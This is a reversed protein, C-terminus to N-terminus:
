KQVVFKEVIIALAATAINVNICKVCHIEDMDM